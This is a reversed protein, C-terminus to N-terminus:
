GMKCPSPVLLKLILLNGFNFISHSHKYVNPWLMILGVVFYGYYCDGLGVKAAGMQFYYEWLNREGEM